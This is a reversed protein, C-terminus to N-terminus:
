TRAALGLGEFAAGACGPRSAEACLAACARMAERPARGGGVEEVARVALALGLGTHLPVAAGEPLDRPLPRGAMGFAYGLGELVWLRSWADLSAARALEEETAAAAGQFLEFARLKEGLERWSLLGEGGMAASLAGASLRSMEWPLRVMAQVIEGMFSM